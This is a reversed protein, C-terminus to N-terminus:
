AADVLKRRYRTGDVVRERPLDDPIAATAVATSREHRPVYRARPQDVPLMLTVEQSPLGHGAPVAGRVWFTRTGDPATDGPGLFGTVEFPFGNIWLADNQQIGQDADM